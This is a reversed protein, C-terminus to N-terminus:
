LNLWRIAEKRNQINKKLRFTIPLRVKIIHVVSGFTILLLVFSLYMVIFNMYLIISTPHFLHWSLRPFFFLCDYVYLILLFLDAPVLGKEIGASRVIEKM